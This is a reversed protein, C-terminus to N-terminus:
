LSWFSVPLYTGKHVPKGDQLLAHYLTGKYLTDYLGRPCHRETCTLVSNRETERVLGLGLGLGASPLHGVINTWISGQGLYRIHGQSTSTLGTTVSFDLTEQSARVSVQM